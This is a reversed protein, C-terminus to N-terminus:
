GSDAARKSWEPQLIAYWIEDGWEGKFLENHIFHAERRMGLREMVKYSAANRADCRAFIRHFGLEGFGLALM